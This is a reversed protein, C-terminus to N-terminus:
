RLRHRTKERHFPCLGSYDRGKKKLSVHGGIIEVIDARAELERIFDEPIRM